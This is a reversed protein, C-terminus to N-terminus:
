VIVFVKGDEVVTEFTEVDEFAPPTLAEGSKIAFRAQHRPCVVEDGDVEGGTLQGSDHTCVDEIAYYEGDVNFVAVDKNRVFATRYEGPSFDETEAVEIKDAM